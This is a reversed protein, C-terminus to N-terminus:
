KKRRLFPQSPLFRIKSDGILDKIKFALMEETMDNHSILFKVIKFSPTNTWFYAGHADIIGGLYLAGNIIDILVGTLPNMPLNVGNLGKMESCDLYNFKEFLDYASTAKAAPQSAIMVRIAPQYQTEGNYSKIPRLYVNGLRLASMELSPEVFWNILTSLYRLITDRDSSFLYIKDCRLIASRVYNNRGSRLFELPIDPAALILKDLKLYDGIGSNDQKLYDDKGFRDSLIRLSNVVVLAGLSHGILNVNITPFYSKIRSPYSLNNDYNEGKNVKGYEQELAVDLRWFFEALDPAGYHVSRYRDRQYVIIRFINIILLWLFFVTLFIWHWQLAIGQTNYFNLGQLIQHFVPVYGGVFLLPILMFKLFLYILISAFLAFGGLVFIFKGFIGFNDRYDLWLSPATFTKESPWHYGLYFHNEELTNLNNILDTDTFFDAEKMFNSYYLNDYVSYGHTKLTLTKGEKEVIIQALEEVNFLPRFRKIPPINRDNYLSATATSTVLFVKPYQRDAYIEFNYSVSQNFDENYWSNLIKIVFEESLKKRLIITSEDLPLDALIAEIIANESTLARYPSGEPFSRSSRGKPQPHALQVIRAKLWCESFPACNRIISQLWSSDNKETEGHWHFPLSPYDRPIVM